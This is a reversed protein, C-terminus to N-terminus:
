FLSRSLRSAMGVEACVVGPWDDAETEEDSSPAPSLSAPPQSCQKRKGKGAGKSAVPKKKTPM